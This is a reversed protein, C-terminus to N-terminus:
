NKIRFYKKIEEIAPYLSSDSVNHLADVFEDLKEYEVLWTLDGKIRDKERSDLSQFVRLFGEANALAVEHVKESIYEGLEAVNVVIENLEFILSICSVDYAAFCVLSDVFSFLRLDYYVLAAHSTDICRFLEKTERLFLDSVTKQEECGRIAEFLWAYQLQEKSLSQGVTLRADFIVLVFTIFFWKSMEIGIIEGILSLFSKLWSM